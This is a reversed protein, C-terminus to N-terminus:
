EAIELLRPVDALIATNLRILTEPGALGDAAIGQDHQFEKIRQRLALDLREAPPDGGSAGQAEALAQWLWLLPEPPGGPGILVVGGPPKWLLLFDGLWRRDVMHLPVVAAGEDLALMAHADGLGILAAYDGTDLRLVVPRDYHRLSDWSGRGERCRLDVGGAFDCPSRTDDLPYDVGWRAFIRRMGVRLDTAWNADVVRQIPEPAPIKPGSAAAVTEHVPEEGVAGADQGPEPQSVPELVESPQTGTESLEKPPDRPSPGIIEALLGENRPLLEWGWYAAAALLLAAATATAVAAVPRGQKEPTELALERAARGVVRRDVRRRGTAYAGLLARDCLINILRPVGGSLQYIRRLARASFLPRQCGAVALRHRIYEKTEAASLPELHFRATIRQAVQRLGKRRLQERLEPQGVLFIQLLKHKDTELNTLLRVQELVEPSLNQAEDIMLMPRRGQAHAALLYENLLRVLEQISPTGEPLDIHFEQCVSRLLETATLAPNLVLAVDVRDPLQELFARCVTTKGTGVEGTLQVFGGGEGAGYLLHALAERHQASLFLYHPDPTISFGPEDLGFYEAYM